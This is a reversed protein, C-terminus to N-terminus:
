KKRSKFFKEAALWDEEASGHVGRAVRDHYIEKAKKRIDEDTPGSKSTTVKKSKVVKTAVSVKKPKSTAKVNTTKM